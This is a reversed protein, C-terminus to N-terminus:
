ARQQNVHVAAHLHNNFPQSNSHEHRFFQFIEDFFRFDSDFKNLSYFVTTNPGNRPSPGAAAASRSNTARSSGRGRGSTAAPKDAPTQKSAASRSAATTRGGRAGRKNSTTQNEKENGDGDDDDNDNNLSFPVTGSNSKRKSLAEQIRKFVQEGETYFEVLAEDIETDEPLKENLFKCAEKISM